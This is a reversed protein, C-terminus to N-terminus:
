ENKLAHTCYKFLLVLAHLQKPSPAMARYQYQEYLEVTELFIAQQTIDVELELRGLWQRVTESHKRKLDEVLHRNFQHLITDLASVNQRQQYYMWLLYVALLSAISVLLIIILSYLSRIGFKAMWSQQAQADYGVVKSQWQYSVYDTWINFKTMLRYQQNRWNAQKGLVDQDQSLLNQMGGDIRQPAIIATPDVRQWHGAIFVETWAHADLQRVEWSKGDPALHGGQYGIVVRAPINVYRMLMAFSSAYHECFGQRSQFLFEDIRNRGLKGPNLTYVFQNLRYWELIDHVYRQPNKHSQQFLSQALQQAKSDYDVPIKINMRKLYNQHPVENEIQMGVWRLAIPENPPAHGQAVISWDQRSTYHRQLPLSKDLGMVWTLSSDAPLYQYDWGSKAQQIAVVSLSLSQKNVFSSSWQQGDYEDLVLGRWYLDSRAPLHQIDGVIRFALASSQSLEAIDGPSMHESMGTQAKNQSMPLHWLPSMRPFFVFLLICFPLAYLIFKGVHRVDQKLAQSQAPSDASFDAIQIRYLGTLCSLLCLLVALAMFFSQSYLFSCAAVFLAFNFLVILDRRNKSELAKAFLFTTLVAVGADVGLFSRYNLYIILLALLVFVLSIVRAVTKQKKLAWSLLLLHVICLLTLLIPQYALQSILVLSLSLVVSVALQRNM